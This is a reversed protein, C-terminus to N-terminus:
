VATLLILLFVWGGVTTGRKGQHGVSPQTHSKPLLTKTQITLSSGCVTSCKVTTIMQWRSKGAHLLSGHPLHNNYCLLLVIGLSIHVQDEASEENVLFVKIM